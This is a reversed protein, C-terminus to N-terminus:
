KLAQPPTFHALNTRSNNQKTKSLESKKKEKQALIHAQAPLTCSADPIMSEKNM